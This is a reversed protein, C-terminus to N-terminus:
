ERLMRPLIEIPPLMGLIAITIASKPDRPASRFSIGLSFEMSGARLIGAKSGPQDLERFHPTEENQDREKQRYRLTVIDSVRAHVRLKSYIAM